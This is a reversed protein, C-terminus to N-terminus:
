TSMSHGGESCKCLGLFVKSAPWLDEMLVIEILNEGQFFFEIFLREDYQPNVSELIHAESVSKGTLM